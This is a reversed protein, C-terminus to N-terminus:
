LLMTNIRHIVDLMPQQNVKFLLNTPHDMDIIIWIITSFVAVLIFNPILSHGGKLGSGYGMAVLSLLTMIYMLVKLAVPIRDGISNNIRRMNIDIIASISGAFTSADAGPIQKVVLAERLLSDQMRECRIIGERLAAINHDKRANVALQYRLNAYDRM